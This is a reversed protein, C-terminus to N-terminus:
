TPSSFRRIFLPHLRDSVPLPFPMTDSEFFALPLFFGRETMASSLWHCRIAFRARAAPIDMECNTMSRTSSGARGGTSASGRGTATCRLAATSRRVSTSASRSRNSFAFASAAHRRRTSSASADTAASASPALGIVRRNGVLAAVRRLMVTKGTGAYGQVGVTRDPTELILRAAARQGDTLGELAQGPIPSAHLPAAAGIGARMREIVEREANVARATTWAEGVGRRIAPLLHKDRELAAFAEEITALDYQGPSHALALALAERRPFVSAREELQAIARWAIELASPPKLARVGVTRRTEKALGREAAFRSWMAQLAERCPERKRKRTALTAAQATRADYRWGKERIYALLDRRRSSFAELVKKPWGAIEFCPLAGIM